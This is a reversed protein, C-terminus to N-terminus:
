QPPTKQQNIRGLLKAMTAATADSQADTKLDGMLKTDITSTKGAKDIVVPAKKGEKDVGELRGLALTGDMEGAKVIHTGCYMHDCKFAACTPNSPDHADLVRKCEKGCRAGKRNGSKIEVPCPITMGEPVKLEGYDKALRKSAKDSDDDKSKKPNLSKANTAAQGTTTNFELQPWNSPEPLEDALEDAAGQIDKPDINAGKSIAWAVIIKAHNRSAEKYLYKLMQVSMATAIEKFNVRTKSEDSM